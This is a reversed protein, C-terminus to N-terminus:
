FCGFPQLSIGSISCPIVRVCIADPCVQEWKVEFCFLIRYSTIRRHPAGRFSCKWPIRIIRGPKAIEFVARGAGYEAFLWESEFCTKEKPGTSVSGESKLVDNEM